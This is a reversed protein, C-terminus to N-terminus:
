SGWRHQQYLEDVSFQQQMEEATQQRRERWSLGAEREDARQNADLLKEFSSRQDPM